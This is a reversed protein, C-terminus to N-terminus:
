VVLPYLAVVVLTNITARALKILFLPLPHSNTIPIINPIPLLLLFMNINPLFLNLLPLPSIRANARSAPSEFVVNDYKELCIYLAKHKLVNNTQKNKKKTESLGWGKTKIM